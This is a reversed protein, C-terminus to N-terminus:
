PNAKSVQPHRSYCGVLRILVAVRPEASRAAKLIGLVEDPQIYISGTTSGTITSGSDSTLRLLM